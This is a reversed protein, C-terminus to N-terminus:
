WGGQLNIKFINFKEEWKHTPSIQKGLYTREVYDQLYIKVESTIEQNFKANVLGTLFDAIQIGQSQESPLGQVFRIQSTLNANNLITKLDNLRGKARNTKLDVFIEYCNFDYIWHHLLQYYFKYFGLESVSANFKIHNVKEAEIIIVRFRLQETQFFYDIIEKYLTLHKKSVKNWKIEGKVNHRDRIERLEKKMISRFDKPLWIGGIATYKHAVPMSLAEISSEDCYVEFNM